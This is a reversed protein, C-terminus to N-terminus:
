FLRKAKTTNPKIPKIEPVAIKDLLKNLSISKDDLRFHYQKGIESLEDQRPICSFHETWFVVKNDHNLVEFLMRDDKSVYLLGFTM